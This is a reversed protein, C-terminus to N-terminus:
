HLTTYREEDYLDGHKKASSGGSDPAVTACVHLKNSTSYDSGDLDCHLTGHLNRLEIM